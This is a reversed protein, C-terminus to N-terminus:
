AGTVIAWIWEKHEEYHGFTNGIITRTIPNESTSTPDYSKYPRRLDDDSMGRIQEVLRGHVTRVLELVESASKHRHLQRVLDNAADFDGLRWIEAWTHADIGMRESRSEGVLLAHVGDEWAALHSLHDKVTWGAADTPITLQDDSLGNLFAQLDDWGAQVQALLEDKSILDTSM